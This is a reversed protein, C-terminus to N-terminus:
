ALRHNLFHEELGALHEDAAARVREPDGSRIAELSREQYGIAAEM